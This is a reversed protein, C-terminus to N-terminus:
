RSSAILTRVTEKLTDYAVPGQTHGALVRGAAESLQTKLAPASREINRFLAVNNLGNVAVKNGQSDQRIRFCGQELGVPSSMGYQSPRTLFLLVQEGVRYGLKTSQDTPDSVFLRFTFSREAEGKWVEAVDLTVVITQLNQLEPHREARVGAVRGAVVTTADAALDALNRHIARADRQAAAPVAALILAALIVLSVLRRSTRNRNSM